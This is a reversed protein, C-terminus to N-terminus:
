KANKQKFPETHFDFKLLIQNNIKKLDQNQQDLRCTAYEKTEDVIMEKISNLYETNTIVYDIVSKEKGQERAWLGKCRHKDANVLSMNEKQIMKLLLRGGKTITEKNGHKATGVKPNFDGLVIVQQKHERAEQIEKTISEYIKKLEIVPTVNEQPVYINSRDKYQNKSQRVTGM